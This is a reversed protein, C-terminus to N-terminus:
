GLKAASDRVDALNNAIAGPTRYPCGAPTYELLGTVTIYSCITDRRSVALRKSRRIRM